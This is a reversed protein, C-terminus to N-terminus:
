ISLELEEIIADLFTIVREKKYDEMNNIIKFYIELKHELTYFNINSLLYDASVDLNDSIYSFLQLDPLLRGEEISYLTSVKISLEKALYEATIFKAKRVNRINNGIKRMFIDDKNESIKNETESINEHEKSKM